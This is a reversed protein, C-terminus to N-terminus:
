ELVLVVLHLVHCNTSKELTYLGIEQLLASHGLVPDHRSIELEKELQNVLTLLTVDTLM